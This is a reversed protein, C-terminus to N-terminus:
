FLFFFMVNGVESMKNVTNQVIKNSLNPADNSDGDESTSAGFIQEYDVKSYKYKVSEQDSQYYYLDDLSQDDDFEARLNNSKRETHKRKAERERKSKDKMLQYTIPFLVERVANICKSRHRNM